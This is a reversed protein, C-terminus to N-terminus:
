SIFTSRPKPPPAPPPHIQSSPGQFSWEPRPSAHDPRDLDSVTPPFYSLETVGLVPDDRGSCRKVMLCRPKFEPMELARHCSEQSPDSREQAPKAPVRMPCSAGESGLTMGCRCLTVSPLAGASLAQWPLLAILVALGVVRSRIAVPPSEPM